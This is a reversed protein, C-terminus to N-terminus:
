SVLAKGHESDIRLCVEVKERWGALANLFYENPIYRNPPKKTRFYEPQGYCKLPSLFSALVVSRTLLSSIVSNSTQSPRFDGSAPYFRPLAPLGYLSERMFM